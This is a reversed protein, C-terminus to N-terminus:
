KKQYPYTKDIHIRLRTPETYDEPVFKRPNDISEAKNPDTLAGTPRRPIGWTETEDINPTAPNDSIPSYPYYISLGSYAAGTPKTIEFWTSFGDGDDDQDLFDPIGDGDTDDPNVPANPYLTTNRYDRVYGDGNIDEQFDFVGDPNLIVAGTTSSIGNNEHDLRRFDYLKISFILPSYAPISGSSSTSAYYGLGSPVFLVGAGFDKYIAAGDSGYSVTGTKFQPFIESWGMIVGYLDQINSPYVVQEFFTTTLHTPETDTKEVRSLYEGKYATLVGDTNMPSRGIGERLVLYYMKYTIGHLDINRLLLKPFSASNLYSMISPQTSPDTIKSMTVDMDATVTIYNTNLYEEINANDTNFQETYDHLPAVTADDDGSKNCSIIATGALLLVFYYKLKNM